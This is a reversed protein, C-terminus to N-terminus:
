GGQCGWQNKVMRFFFIGWSFTVVVCVSDLILFCCCCRFASVQVPSLSIKHDDSSEPKTVIVPDFAPLLKPIKSAPTSTADKKAVLSLLRDLEKDADALEKERRMKIKERIKPTLIQSASM